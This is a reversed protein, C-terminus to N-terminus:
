KSFVIIMPMGVLESMDMMLSGDLSKLELTQGGLDMKAGDAGVTYTFESDDMSGKGGAEFKLSMNTGASGMMAAIADDDGYISLGMMNMGSVKWDGVLDAESTIPKANEATIETAGPLTGDKTFFITAAQGDQEMSLSLVGDAYALDVSDGFVGLDEDSAASASASESEASASADTAPALTIGKGNDTWTVDYTEEGSVFAGTGDAKLNLGFAMADSNGGVASAIADLDGVMTIVGTGMNAEMGAFKWDGTYDVAASASTPASGSANGSSAASSSGGGGCAALGLCCICLMAACIMALYKKM